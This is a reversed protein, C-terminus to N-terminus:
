LIIANDSINKIYGCGASATVSVVAWKSANIVARAGHLLVIEHRKCEDCNVVAVTRGILVAREPNQLTINGADIHIGYKKDVGQAKFLRFTSLSSFHYRTCFELGQQSLFVAALEDVTRETGKFLNCRRYKEAVNHLSRSEYDRQAQGKAIKWQAYIQRIITEM